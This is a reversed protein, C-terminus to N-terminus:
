NTGKLYIWEVPDLQSKDRGDGFVWSTYPSDSPGIMINIHLHAASGVGTNDAVGIFQGRKVKAGRTIGPPLCPQSGRIIADNAGFFNNPDNPEEHFYTVYIIGGGTPRFKKNNNAISYDSAINNYIYPAEVRLSDMDLKYITRFGGGGSTTELIEGDWIAYLPYKTPSSTIDLDLGRHPSKRPRSGGRPSQGTYPSTPIANQDGVPSWFRRYGGTRYKASPEGGTPPATALIEDCSNPGDSLGFFGAATSLLNDLQDVGESVFGSVTSSNTAKVKSTPSIKGTANSNKPVTQGDIKTWWGSDNIEHSIGKTLFEIKSRYNPPLLEETITYKQYVKIGSLGQMTIDLSLPIFGLPPIVAPKNVTSTSLDGVIYRLYPKFSSNYTEIDDEDLKLRIVRNLYAFIKKQHEQFKEEPTLPKPDPETTDDSNGGGEEKSNQKEEVVRDICGKNWESFSTANEGVVNGNSQAGITIMSAIEKTLESKIGIDKVFSGENPKILHTNLRVPEPDKEEILNFVGPIQTNDMFRIENSDENYIVEFKNIGGMAQQVGQLISTLFDYLSLDGNEDTNENLVKSIFNANVHIHMMNGVFPENTRFHDQVAQNFDTLKTQTDGSILSGVWSNNWWGDEQKIGQLTSAGDPVPIICIRPDTSFQQPITFCYNGAKPNNLGFDGDISILPPNKDKATDYVLCYMEILRCLTGFKIYLQEEGTSDDDFSFELRLVERFDKLSNNPSIFDQYKEQLEGKITPLSPIKDLLFENDVQDLYKISVEGKYWTDDEACKERIANLILNLTSKDKDKEVSPAEDDTDEEKNTDNKLVNIKLSEIVDGPTIGKITIDYSGDQNLDWSFNKVYGLFADYNGSSAERTQELIDLIERQTHGGALFYDSNSLPESVLTGSNDFYSTHGFELLFSYKLRLFLTEIINFQLRNYCKIKIESERLSGRNLSRVSAGMIGPAPTLGFDPSSNFGYSAKGFLDDYNSTVGFRSQTRNENDKYATGGFMLYQKALRNGAYATPIGLEECKVTTIDVGSTLKLYPTKSNGFLINANDSDFTGLKQQRINVQNAVYEKFTEGIINAM